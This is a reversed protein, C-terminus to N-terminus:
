PHNEKICMLMTTTASAIIESPFHRIISQLFIGYKVKSKEYIDYVQAFLKKDAGFALCQFIWDIAPEFLQAYEELNQCKDNGKKMAKDYIKFCFDVLVFLYEKQEPDVSYGTRALYSATYVACLPEAIGRVM